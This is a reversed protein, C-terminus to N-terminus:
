VERKAVKRNAKMCLCLNKLGHCIPPTTHVLRRAVVKDSKMMVIIHDGHKFGGEFVAFNLPDLLHKQIARNLPLTIANLAM